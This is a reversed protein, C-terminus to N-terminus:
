FNLSWSVSSCPDESAQGRLARILVLTQESGKVQASHQPHLFTSVTETGLDMVATGAATVATIQLLLFGGGLVCVLYVPLFIIILARSIRYELRLDLGM